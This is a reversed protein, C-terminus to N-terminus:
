IMSGFKALPRASNSHSLFGNSHRNSISTNYTNGSGAGSAAPFQISATNEKNEFGNDLVIYHYHNDGGDFVSLNPHIDADIEYSGVKNNEENAYELLPIISQIFM